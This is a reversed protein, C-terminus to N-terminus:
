QFNSSGQLAKFVTDKVMQDVSNKARRFGRDVFNHKKFGPHIWADEPRLPAARVITRGQSYPQTKLPINTRGATRTLWKMRFAKRGEIIQDIWPWSSLVDVTRRTRRQYYFSEFFRESNPIGEPSGVPTPKNGQKALDARAELVIFKVLLKGVGDLLAPSSATENLIATWPKSYATRLLKATSKAM